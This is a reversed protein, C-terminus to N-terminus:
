SQYRKLDSKMSQKLGAYLQAQYKDKYEPAEDLAAYADALKRTSDSFMQQMENTQQETQAALRRSIASDDSGSVGVRQDDSGPKIAGGAIGGLTAGAGAGSIGATAMAPAVAALSAGGTPVALIAGVAGAIAGAVGGWKSGSEEGKKIPPNIRAM